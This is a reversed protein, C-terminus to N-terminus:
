VKRMISDQGKRRRVAELEEKSQEQKPTGAHEAGDDGNRKLAPSDQLSAPSALMPDRDVGFSSRKASRVPTRSPPKLSPTYAPSLRSPLMTILKTVQAHGAAKAPPLSPSSVVAVDNAAAQQRQDERGGAIVPSDFWPNSEDAGPERQDLHSRPTLVPSPSASTAPSLATPRASRTGLKSPASTSAARNVLTKGGRRPPQAAARADFAVAPSSTSAHGGSMLRQQMEAPSCTGSSNMVAPWTTAAQVPKQARPREGAGGQQEKLPSEASLREGAVDEQQKAAEHEHPRDTLSNQQDNVPEQVIPGEGAVDKQQKEEQARPREGAGDQQEKVPDQSRPREAAVDQQQKVPEQEHAKEAPGDPQKKVPEQKQVRDGPSGQQQRIPEQELPMEGAGVQQQSEPRPAPLADADAGLPRYGNKSVKSDQTAPKTVAPKSTSPGDAPQTEMHQAQDESAAQM